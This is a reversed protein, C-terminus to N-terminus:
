KSSDPYTSHPVDKLPGTPPGLVGYERVIVPLKESGAAALTDSATAAAVSSGGAELGLGEGVGADVREGRVWVRYGVFHGLSECLPGELFMQKAAERGCPDCRLVLSGQHSGLTGVGAIRGPPALLEYWEVALERSGSPACGKMGHVRVRQGDLLLLEGELAPARLLWYDSNEGELVLQRQYPHSGTVRITGAVEAPRPVSQDPPASACTSFTGLLLIVLVARTSASSLPM